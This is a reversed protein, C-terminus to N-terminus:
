RGGPNRSSIPHGDQSMVQGARVGVWATKGDDAHQVKVKGVDRGSTPGADKQSGVPMDPRHPKDAKEPMPLEVQSLNGISGPQSAMGEGIGQHEKAPIDRGKTVSVSKVPLKTFVAVANPIAPHYNYYGAYGRKALDKEVVDLDAAEHMIGRPTQKVKMALLGHPDAGMDYLRAGKPLSASYKYHGGGRFEKEPPTGARYYYTRPIKKTRYKEEGTNSGTGQFKPDLVKLDGKKSYHELEMPHEQKTDIDYKELLLAKVSPLGHDRAAQLRHNGDMVEYAGDVRKVVLPPLQDGQSLMHRYLNYQGTDVVGNRPKLKDTPVNVDKMKGYIEQQTDRYDQDWARREASGYEPIKTGRKSEFTKAEDKSLEASPAPMPESAEPEIKDAKCRLCKTGKGYFHKCEAKGLKLDESQMPIDDHNDRKFGIMNAADRRDYFHGDHGIFGEADILFDEPLATIDHFPGTGQVRGDKAKFGAERFFKQAKLVPDLSKEDFTVLKADSESKTVSDGVLQHALMLLSKVIGQIAAYLDPETQQLLAIMPAQAKVTKLIKVVQQKLDDTAAGAQTAKRSEEQRKDYADAHDHFQSEFDAAAHTMEPEPMAELNAQGTEGQSHASAASMPSEADAPKGPMTKGGFGAGAGTNAATVAKSLSESSEEKPLDDTYLIIVNGGRRVAAKMAMDAESVKLGVGISVEIDLLGAVQRRLGDLEMLQDAPVEARGEDGTSNIITGLHSMVWSFWLDIAARRKQDQRRLQEPDDSISVKRPDTRSLGSTWSIFLQPSAM